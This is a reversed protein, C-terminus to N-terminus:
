GTLVHLLKIVAPAIVVAILVPMILLMVPMTIKAPIKAAQAEAHQRRAKRLSAAQHHLADSIAVGHDNARNVARVFKSVADVRCRDAMAQYADRRNAGTQIDRVARGIEVALPGPSNRAVYEMAADFGLGANVAIVVQDLLEPMDRAMQERREIARSRILGDVAFFGGVPLLVAVPVSLLGPVWSSLPQAALAGAALGFVKVLLLNEVTYGDPRGAGDIAAQLRRKMSNPFVRAVLAAAGVPQDASARKAQQRAAFDARKLNREVRKAPASASWAVTAAAILGVAIVAPLVLLFDM